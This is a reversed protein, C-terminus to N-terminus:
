GAHFYDPQRYARLQGDIQRALAFLGAESGRPGIIQVGIPLGNSAAGAPITIAPLNAVNALCTFDAQNAPAPEAHDFAPQPTTPLIIPGIQTVIGNLREATRALIERDAQRDEDKRRPGYSILKALTPSLTAPDADALEAHLAAATAIFGAYRIRSPADALTVAPAMDLLACVKRFCEAVEPTCEVGGLDALTVPTGALADDGFTSTLRSAQELLDLSRALPGIVDLAPEALELGDRSVATQAPKFGYVGCYSAPIRVSGMTDTGLALDCLGAAVASGSGGSSGGPTFGIRHPNHTAGFFPNDTKAGLAGEEMNLTGIIAAGANRLAAVTAADRAATRDRHLAMGATWPLGRVAINSKVGVTVGALPGEGFRAATDFDVFANLPRNAEALAAFDPQPHGTM